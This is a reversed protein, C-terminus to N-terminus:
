FCSCSIQFYLNCKHRLIVRSVLMLMLIPVLRTIVLDYGVYVACNLQIDDIHVVDIHLMFNMVHCDSSFFIMTLGPRSWKGASSKWEFLLIPTNLAWGNCSVVQM